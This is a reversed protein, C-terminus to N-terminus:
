NEDASFQDPYSICVIDNRDCCQEVDSSGCYNHYTCNSHQPEFTEKTEFNKWVLKLENKKDQFNISTSSAARDGQTGEGRLTTADGGIQLQKVELKQGKLIATNQRMRSMHEKKNERREYALPM